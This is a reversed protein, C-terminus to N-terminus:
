AHAEGAPRKLCFQRCWGSAAHFAGFLGRMLGFLPTDYRVRLSNGDPLVEVQLMAGQRSLIRAAARAEAASEYHLTHDLNM